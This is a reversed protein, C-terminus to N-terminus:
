GDIVTPSRTVSASSPVTTSPVRAGDLSSRTCTATYAARGRARASTCVCLGAAVRQLM